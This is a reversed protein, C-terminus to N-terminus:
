CSVFGPPIQVMWECQAVSQSSTQPTAFARLAAAKSASFPLVEGALENLADLEAGSENILDYSRWMVGGLRLQMVMILGHKM